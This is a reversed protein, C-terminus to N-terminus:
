AVRGGGQGSRPVELGEEQRGVADVRLCCSMVYADEQRLSADETVKPYSGGWKYESTKTGQKQM